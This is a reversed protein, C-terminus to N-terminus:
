AMRMGDKLMRSSRFLGENRFVCCNVGTQGNHSIFKRWALLADRGPSILVLKEGPGIFLRRTRGDRYVRASYHREYLQLADPDGDRSQFWWPSVRRLTANRGGTM